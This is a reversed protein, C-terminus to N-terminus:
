GNGHIARFTKRHKKGSSITQSKIDLEANAFFRALHETHGSSKFLRRIACIFYDAMLHGLPMFHLPAISWAAQGKVCVGRYRSHNPERANTESQSINTSCVIGAAPYSGIGSRDLIRWADRVIVSGTEEDLQRLKQIKFM